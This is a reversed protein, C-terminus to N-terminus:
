VARLSSLSDVAVLSRRPILETEMGSFSTRMSMKDLDDDVVNRHDIGCLTRVSKRTGGVSFPRERRDV